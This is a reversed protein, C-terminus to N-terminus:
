QRRFVLLEREPGVRRRLVVSYTSRFAPASLVASDLHSDYSVIWCPRVTEIVDLLPRRMVEPSVLGVLDLVPGRYYYGLTGIETAALPCQQDTLVREAVERYLCEREHCWRELTARLSPLRSGLMLAAAAAVPLAMQEFGARPMAQRLAREILTSVCSLYVPLLPVFYWPYPGFAGTAIFVLAYATWWLAMPLFVPRARRGLVVAGVIAAPTLALFYGSWFRVLFAGLSERATLRTHAKAAVSAPVLTHFFSLAFIVWPLVTLAGAVLANRASRPGHRWWLFGILVPALLAGDPRCLTALGITIGTATGRGSDALSSALLLLAVYTSTELGSVSYIVFAPWFAIAIGYLVAALPWGARQLLAAGCAITVLDAATNIAFSTWALDIGRLAAGALVLAFLPATTGQVREGVNYVLGNGAALNEAYRFTIYADDAVHPGLFLRVAMAIAGVALLPM